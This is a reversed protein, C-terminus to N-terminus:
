GGVYYERLRLRTSYKAHIPCRMCERVWSVQAGSILVSKETMILVAHPHNGATVVMVVLKANSKLKTVCQM